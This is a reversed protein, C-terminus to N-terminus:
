AKVKSGWGGEWRGLLGLSVPFFIPLPAAPLGPPAQPTRLFWPGAVNYAKVHSAFGGRNFM